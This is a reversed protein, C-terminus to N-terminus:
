ADESQRDLHARIALALGLAEVGVGALIFVTRPAGGALLAVAALSIAWGALLLGFGLLKM